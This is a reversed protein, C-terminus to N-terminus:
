KYKRLNFIGWAALLMEGILGVLFVPSPIGDFLISVLRGFALGSMFLVNSLTAAIWFGHKFIGVTWFITMAIYLGMLARFIGSLEINEFKIHFINELFGCPLLGYTLAVPVIIVISIVLHLNKFKL